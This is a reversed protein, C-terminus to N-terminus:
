NKRNARLFAEWTASTTFFRDTMFSVWSVHTQNRPQSSGRSYPIGRSWPCLLMTSQLGHLWLSNSLVSRSLVCVNTRSVIECFQSPSLCVTIQSLYLLPQGILLKIFSIANQSSLCKLSNYLSVTKWWLCKWTMILFYEVNLPFFAEGFHTMNKNQILM